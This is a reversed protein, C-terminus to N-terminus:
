ARLAVLFQGFLLAAQVAIAVVMWRTWFVLAKAQNTSQQSAEGLATNTENLAVKLGEGTRALSRNTSELVDVLAILEYTQAEATRVQIEAELQRVAQERLHVAEPKRLTSLATAAHAIARRSPRSTESETMQLRQPESRGIWRPGQPDM